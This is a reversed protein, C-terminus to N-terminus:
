RPTGSRRQRAHQVARAVIAAIRDLPRRVADGVQEDAPEQDERSRSALRAEREQRERELRRKHAKVRAGAAVAQARTWVREPPGAVISICDVPCPSVCLQCGICLSDVVTHMRQTAGVIADFPCAQICLTCGICRSEDILATPVRRAAGHQPDPHADM